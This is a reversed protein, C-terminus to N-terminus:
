SLLIREMQPIDVVCSLRKSSNLLSEMCCLDQAGETVSIRYSMDEDQDIAAAKSIKCSNVQLVM